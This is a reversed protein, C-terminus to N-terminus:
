NRRLQTYITIHVMLLKLSSYLKRKATALVDILDHILILHCYLYENVEMAQQRALSLSMLQTYMYITIYYIIIFSGYLKCKISATM